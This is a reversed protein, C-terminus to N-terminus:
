RGGIHPLFNGLGAARLVQVAEVCLTSMLLRTAEVQVTTDFSMSAGDMSTSSVTQVGGAPNMPDVGGAVWAAVQLCTADRMADIVEPDTPYGAPTVDYWDGRTAHGVLASARGILKEADEPVEAMHDALDTSKAYTLM